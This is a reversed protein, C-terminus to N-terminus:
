KVTVPLILDITGPPYCVQDDCAQVRLKASLNHQGTEASRGAKLMAKVLTEGEYVKLPGEAFSFKRTLPDPYRIFDVSLGGAPPVQLETAILYPYSPPNANIHYGNQIELRVTAYGSAGKALTVEQPSAKVVGTSTVRPPEAGTASVPQNTNAAPKACAALLLCSFVILKRM